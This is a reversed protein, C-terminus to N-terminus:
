IQVGYIAMYGSPDVYTEGNNNTQLGTIRPDTASGIVIAFHLHAGFSNGCLNMAGIQQGPKVVSGVSIGAAQISDLSMHSYTAIVGDAHQIDVRNDREINGSGEGTGCGPNGGHIAVVTGDTVSYVPRGIANSFTFDVGRHFYCFSNPNSSSCINRPGWPDSPTYDADVPLVYTGSAAVAGATGFEEEDEGNIAQAIQYDLAFVAMASLSRPDKVGQITSESSVGEQDSVCVTEGDVDTCPNNNPDNNASGDGGTTPVTCGVANLLYDGNQPNSCSEMTEALLTETKITSGILEDVTANDPKTMPENSVWGENIMLDVADSASMADQESTLGTCPMGVATIGPTDSENPTSLDFESAYGCYTDDYDAALASPSLLRTPLAAISALAQPITFGGGNAFLAIRGHHVISGLFTYPSSIDFPSLSAIDMARNFNQIEQKMDNWALLQKKKLVPLHRSLGGASFFAMASLGIVDGLEEGRANVIDENKALDTLADRAAGELLSSVIHIAAETIAYSAIIKILGGVVTTSAAITASVDAATAAYMAPPSMITNCAPKSAEAAANMARIFPNTLAGYGPILNTPLSVRNKNINATSQLIGSDVPARLKGDRKSPAMETVIGAAVAMDGATFNSGVAEAKQKSGPSGIFNIFFPLLQALQLAAYGTAILGPARVGMCAGVAVTYAPGAKGAKRLNEKARDTIKTAIKDVSMTGAVKKKFKELSENIRERTSKKGNDNTGDAVGGKRDISFPKYLKKSIHNGMWAKTRMNWAGSRGLLKNSMEANAKDSLFVEMDAAAVYRYKKTGDPNTGDEFGYGVPNKDPYGSKGGLHQVTGDATGYAIVGKKNLAAIAKNSIRGNKCKISKPGNACFVDNEPNTMNAFVKLFRREMATSASDNRETINEMLSILISSPGFFGIGIGGGVLVATIVGIVGGRKRMFKLTGEFRKAGRAQKDSLGSTNFTWDSRPARESEQVHNKPDNAQDTGASAYAEEKARQEHPVYSGGEAYGQEIDSDLKQAM